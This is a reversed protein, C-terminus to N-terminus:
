VSSEQPIDCMVVEGIDRETSISYELVCMFLNAVRPSLRYLSSLYKLRERYSAEWRNLSASLSLHLDKCSHLLSLFSSLQPVDGKWHGLM